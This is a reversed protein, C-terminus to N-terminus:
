AGETGGATKEAEALTAEDYWGQELLKDRDYTTKNEEDAMDLTLVVSNVKKGEVEVDFPLPRAIIDFSKLQETTEEGGTSGSINVPSLTCNPFNVIYEDGNSDTFPVALRFPKKTPNTPLSWSGGIKVKGQAEDAFDRPLYGAELSITASQVNSLDDHLINSLYVQSETLEFTADLTNLSPTEVVSNAYEPAVDPTAETEMFDVFISGAGTMLAQKEYTKAM